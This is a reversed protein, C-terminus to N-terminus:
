GQEKGEAARAAKELVDIWANFQDISPHVPFQRIYGDGVSGGQRDYNWKLWYRLINAIEVLGGSRAETRETRPKRRAIKDSESRTM